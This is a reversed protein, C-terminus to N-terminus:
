VTQLLPKLHENFLQNAQESPLNEIANLYHQIALQWSKYGDREHMFYDFALYGIDRIDAGFWGYMQHYSQPSLHTINVEDYWRDLEDMEVQLMEAEQAMVIQNITKWRPLYSQEKDFCFDLIQEYAITPCTRILYLLLQWSFVAYDTWVICGKTTAQQGNRFPYDKAGLLKTFLPLTQNQKVRKELQLLHPAKNMLLNTWAVSQRAEGINPLSNKYLPWILYYKHNQTL